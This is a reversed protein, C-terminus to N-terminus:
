PILTVVSEISGRATLAVGDSLSAPIFVTEGIGACEAQTGAAIQLEGEGGTCMIAIPGTASLQAQEGDELAVTEMSFYDCRVGCRGSLPVEARPEGWENFHISAMAEDIHLTRPKGDLGVRNWDFVRYTTDSSQQVEALVIGEGIAHVTGSPLFVYDGKQVHKRHLLTDVTGNKLASEFEGRTVGKKLGVCLRADPTCSIVYWAETKPRAGEKLTGCAEIDPHVQVSLTKQADIFKFLLPFRGDLLSARGMMEDPYKQILSELTEGSFPGSTVISQNGDLDSLEWSEGYPADSPLERNMLSALNQGGWVVKKLIPKFKLLTMGKL